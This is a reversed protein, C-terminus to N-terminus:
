RKGIEEAVRELETVSEPAFLSISAIGHAGADLASRAADLTNMGGLAFVPITLASSVTALAELGIGPHGPKSSTPFIPSLTIYSAGLRAAHLAEDLSHASAGFPHSAVVPNPEPMAGLEKATRHVFRATRVVVGNAILAVGAPMGLEIAYMCLTAVRGPRHRADRLMLGLPLDPAGLVFEHVRDVRDMDGAIALLRFDPILLRDDIAFGGL